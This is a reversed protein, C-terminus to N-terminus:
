LAELSAIRNGSLELTKLETLAQVGHVSEMRNFRSYFFVGWLVLVATVARAKTRGSGVVAGGARVIAVNAQLSARKGAGVAAAVVAKNL